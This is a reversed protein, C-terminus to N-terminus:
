RFRDRASEFANKLDSFASELGSKVDKWDAQGSRKLEAIKADVKKKKGKVEEVQVLYQIKADGGIQETKAKLERIKTEWEKLRAEMKRQYYGKNEEM